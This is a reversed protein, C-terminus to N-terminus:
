AMLRPSPRPAGLPNCQLCGINGCPGHEHKFNAVTTRKSKKLARSSKSNQGAVAWAQYQAKMATKRARKAADSKAKAKTKSGKGSGAGM